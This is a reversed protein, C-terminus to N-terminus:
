FVEIFLFFIMFEKIGISLNESYQKNINKAWMFFTEVKVEVKWVADLSLM